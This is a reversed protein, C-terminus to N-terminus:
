VACRTESVNDWEGWINFQTNVCRHPLGLRPHPTRYCTAEWSQGWPIDWLIASETALGAGTCTIQLNGWRLQAPVVSQAGVSTHSVDVRYQHNGRYLSADAAFGPITM